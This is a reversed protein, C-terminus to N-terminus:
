SNDLWVDGVLPDAPASPGVFINRYQKTALAQGSNHTAVGGAVRLFRTNVILADIIGPVKATFGLLKGYGAMETYPM